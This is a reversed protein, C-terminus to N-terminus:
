IHTSGEIEVTVEAEDQQEDYNDEQQVNITPERELRSYIKGFANALSDLKVANRNVEDDEMANRLENAVDRIRELDQQIYTEVNIKIILDAVPKRLGDAIKKITRLQPERDGNIWSDVDQRSCGIRKALDINKIEQEAICERAYNRNFM